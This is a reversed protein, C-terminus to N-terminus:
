STRGEAPARRFREYSDDFLSGACALREQDSAQTLCIGEIIHGIGSTESRDYKEDEIDLNRIIEGITVHRHDLQVEPRVM